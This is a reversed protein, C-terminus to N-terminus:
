STSYFSTTYNNDIDNDFIDIFDAPNVLSNSTPFMNEICLDLGLFDAKEVLVELSQMAYKRVQEIVLVGLGVIFSPHLVVKLPRIESAVELSQLVEKLSAERISETLDATSVFSPLHCILKLDHRDLSDLLKDKTKRITKYHAQPPDMTLEMYDFGLNSIVELEKLVPMIPFNMAGYLM